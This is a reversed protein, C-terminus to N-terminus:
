ALSAQLRDLQDKEGLTIIAVETQLYSDPVDTRDTSTMLYAIRKGDPHWLPSSDSGPNTTVRVPEQPTAQPDM